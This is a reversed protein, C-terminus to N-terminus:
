LSDRVQGHAEALRLGIGRELLGHHLDELFEVGQLDIAPVTGLFFVVLRVGPGRKEFAEQFRERVYDVNFYMLAAETRFVFVDPIRENDPHRALDAFFDTGPVRGLETTRPRSARRIVLLLSLLAGVLVGRLLGSGLVGLLAAIAVAFEQRSFTWLRRLDHIKVLGTVAVIVVAALVPQPLNRLLGTLFLAVAALLFTAILGSAPTLAGGAENVVSQSMGGSIPYGRGLGAALNSAALALFEQNSDIRYKHKRGFMRGIATTEVAGLLFCGIALPLITNLDATRVDPLGPAPIGPRVDGLTQVGMEALHLLPVAAIGAIVVLLSVPRAPFLFKGALLAALASLGLLLSITHTEGLHTLFHHSREWFDGHAGKFGFLKPLQSAALHFAVGTKFGAMVSESVFSTLSGAKAAWAALALLGAILATLAALAALRAPDGGALEGISSGVLLSIASTVTVVTHKSSCFLWFLLGGFLCAYVGSEPPLGALSADGIAAPLLYAALTVGAVVDHRWDEWSRGRFCTLGPLLNLLRPPRYQDEM